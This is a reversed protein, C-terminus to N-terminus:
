SAHVDFWDHKGITNKAANWKAIVAAASRWQGDSAWPVPGSSHGSKFFRGNRKVYTPEGYGMMRIAKGACRDYFNRHNSLNRFSRQNIIKFKSYGISALHKIYREPGDALEFSLFQPRTQSTLSFVVLDDAGEIDIKLYYPLGFESFLSQITVGRVTYQGIPTRYDTREKFISSSGLDDGSITLTIDKSENAVAANIIKLQGAQVYNELEREGRQALAPNAEIAVVRFGEELYYQTDAADYMGLDFVLKM